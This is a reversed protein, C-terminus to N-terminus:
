LKVHIKSFLIKILYEVKRVTFKNDVIFDRYLIYYIYINHSFLFLDIKIPTVVEFNITLDNNVHM